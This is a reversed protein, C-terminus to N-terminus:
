SGPCPLVINPAGYNDDQKASRICGATWDKDLLPCPHPPHLHPHRDNDYYSPTLDGNNGGGDVAAVTLSAAMPATPEIGTDGGDVIVEIAAM